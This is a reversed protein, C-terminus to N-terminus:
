NCVSFKNKYVKGSGADIVKYFYIGNSLSLTAPKGNFVKKGKFDFIQFEGIRYHSPIKLLLKNSSSALSISINKLQTFHVNSISTAGQTAFYGHTWGPDETPWGLIDADCYIKVRWYYNTATKLSVTDARNVNTLKVIPLVDTKEYVIDTFQQDTSIQIVEVGRPTYEKDNAMYVTQQFASKWSFQINNHDLGTQNNPSIIVTKAPVPKFAFVPSWLSKVVGKITRVRWIYINHRQKEWDAKILDSRIDLETATVTKSIITSAFDDNNITTLQIEYGTAGTIAHWKLILEDEPINKENNEPSIQTPYITVADTPTFNGTASWAGTGIHNSAKVRWFYQKGATLSPTKITQVNSTGTFAINNFGADEAVEIDFQSAGFVRNWFLRPSVSSENVQELLPAKPASSIITTYCHMKEAMKDKLSYFRMDRSECYSMIGGAGGGPAANCIVDDAGIDPVGFNHGMEHAFVNSAINGIDLMTCRSYEFSIAINSSVECGGYNMALSGGAGTTIYHTFDRNNDPYISKWTKYLQDPATGYNVPSTTFHVVSVSLMAGFDYKYISSIQEVVNYAYYRCAATDKEFDMYTEYGVDIGIAIDTLGAGVQNPNNMMDESYSRLIFEENSLDNKPYAASFFIDNNIMSEGAKAFFMAGFAFVLICIKKIM